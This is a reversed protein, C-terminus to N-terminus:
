LKYVRVKEGAKVGESNKELLIYGDSETLTNWVGSRGLKPCAIMEHDRKELRVMQCTARGPAAALNESLIAEVYPEFEIKKNLVVWKVLLEFVTAAAAPHGPLGIYVTDTNEDFAILTPKGPKLALGHILVNDGSLKSFIHETFDHEGKSSGGSTIVLDNMRASDRLREYLIERDDPLLDVERVNMGVSEAQCRIAYSNSEYIQGMHLAEGSSVLENGTSFISVQLPRKVEVESIGAASLIGMQAFGLRTGAKLLVEGARTEDGPYVVHAGVAVSKAVAINEEDFNECYEVMVMADAGAPLMGGTPVYVCEGSHIESTTEEGMEAEGIVRLFAPISDTAGFTDSAKVAYGDVATRVFNPIDIPSKVDKDLIRGASKTINIIETETKIRGLVNELIDRAEELDVINLLNLRKKGGVVVYLAGGNEV